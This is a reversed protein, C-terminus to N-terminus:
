FAKAPTMDRIVVPGTPLSAITYRFARPTVATEAVPIFVFVSAEERAGVSRPYAIDTRVAAPLSDWLGPDHASLNLIAPRSGGPHEIEMRDDTLSLLLKKDGVNRVAIRVVRYKDRVTALRFLLPELEADFRCMKDPGDGTQVEASYRIRKAKSGNAPVSTDALVLLTLSTVLVVTVTRLTSM